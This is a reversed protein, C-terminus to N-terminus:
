RPPSTDSGYCRCCTISAGQYCPRYSRPECEGLPTRRSFRVKQCTPSVPTEQVNGFGSSADGVTNIGDAASAMAKMMYGLLIVVCGAGTETITGDAAYMVCGKYLADMVDHGEVLPKAALTTTNVVDGYNYLFLNGQGLTLHFLAQSALVISYQHVKM